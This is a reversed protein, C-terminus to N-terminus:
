YGHLVGRQLPLVSLLGPHTFPQQISIICLRWCWLTVWYYSSPIVTVASSSTLCSLFFVWGFVCSRKYFINSERESNAPSIKYATTSRSLLACLWTTVVRCTPTHQPYVSAILVRVKHTCETAVENFVGVKYLAVKNSADIKCKYEMKSGVSAKPAPQKVSVRIQGQPVSHQSRWQLPFVCKSNTCCSQGHGISQGLTTM